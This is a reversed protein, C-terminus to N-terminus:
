GIAAQLSSSVKSGPGEFTGGIVPVVLHDGITHPPQTDIILDFLWESLLKDDDQGTATSLDHRRPSAGMWPAAASIPAVAAGAGSAACIKGFTRRTM